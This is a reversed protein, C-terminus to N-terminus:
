YDAHGGSNSQGQSSIQHGGLPNIMGGKEIHCHLFSHIFALPLPLSLFMGWVGGAHVPAPSNM